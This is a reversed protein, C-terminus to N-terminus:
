VYINGSFMNNNASIVVGNSTFGNNNITGYLTTNGYFSHSAATSDVQYRLTSTNIGFGYFLVASSPTDSTSSDYLVLQKNFVQNSGIQVVGNSYMQMYATNNIKFDM